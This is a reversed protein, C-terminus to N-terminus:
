WNQGWGILIRDHCVPLSGRFWDVVGFFCDDGSDEITGKGGVGSEGAFTSEGGLEADGAGGEAFDDAAEFSVAPESDLM